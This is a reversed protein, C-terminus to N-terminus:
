IAVTATAYWRPSEIIVVCTNGNTPPLQFETDLLDTSILLEGTADYVSIAANCEQQCVIGMLRTESDYVIDISPLYVPSREVGNRISEPLLPFVNASTTTKEAHAQFLTLSFIIGLILNLHKMAPYTKNNKYRLTIAIFTKM